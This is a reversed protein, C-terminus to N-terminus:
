VDMPADFVASEASVGFGSAAARRTEGDLPREFCAALTLRHAAAAAAVAAMLGSPLVKAAGIVVKYRLSPVSVAKGRAADRLGERVVDDANLWLFPM